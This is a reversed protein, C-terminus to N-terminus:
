VIRLRFILPICQNNTKSGYSNVSNEFGNHISAVIKATKSGYSNVSNEFTLPLLFRLIVTKSGYSNVSNEFRLHSYVVGSYYAPYNM